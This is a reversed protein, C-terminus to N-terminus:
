TDDKKEVELRYFGYGFITDKGLHTYEGAKLLPLFSKENSVFVFVKSSM